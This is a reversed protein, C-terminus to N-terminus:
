QYVFIIGMFTNTHATKRTLQLYCPYGGSTVATNAPLTVKITDPYRVSDHGFSLCFNPTVHTITLNLTTSSQIFQVKTIEFNPYNNLNKDYSIYFDIDKTYDLYPSTPNSKADEIRVSVPNSSSSVEFPQMWQLNKQAPIANINNAMTSFSANASTSVGKNTIASAVLAKGDAVSGVLGQLASEVTTKQVGEITIPTELTKPQKAKIDTAFGTLITEADGFAVFNKDSM